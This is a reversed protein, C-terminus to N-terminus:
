PPGVRCGSRVVTAARSGCAASRRPRWTTSSKASRASARALGRSAALVVAAAPVVLVVVSVAVPVVPVVEPVVLVAAPVVPVVPAAAPVELVALAAVPVVLVAPAAAPVVPVAVSAAPVVPAVAVPVARGAEVVQVERVDRVVRDPPPPVRALPMMGPQPSPRRARWRTRGPSCWQVPQQGAPTGAFRLTTAPVRRSGSPTTARARVQNPHPRVRVLLRRPNPPRARRLPLPAPSPGTRVSPCAKAAPAAPAAPPEPAPATKKVPRPAPKPRFHGEQGAGPRQKAPASKASDRLRRVVPAEITSSASKVFEGHRQTASSLRVRWGLERALEYVRVKAVKKRDPGPM